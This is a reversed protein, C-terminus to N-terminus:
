SKFETATPTNVAQQESSQLLFLASFLLYYYIGMQRELVSETTMILLMSFLFLRAPWANKIRLFLLFLGALFLFLVGIGYAIGLSLYQNHPNLHIIAGKHFGFWVYCYDMIGQVNRAGIGTVVDSLFVSRGCNFIIMRETLTNGFNESIFFNQVELLRSRLSPIFFILFVLTGFFSFYFIVLKMKNKVKVYALWLLGLGFILLPM